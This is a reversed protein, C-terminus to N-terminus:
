ENGKFQTMENGKSVNSNSKRRRGGGWSVAVRPQVLFFLYFPFFGFM